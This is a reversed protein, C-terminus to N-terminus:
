QTYLPPGIPCSGAPDSSGCALSCM